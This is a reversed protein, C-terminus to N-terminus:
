SLVLLVKKTPLIFCNNPKEVSKLDILTNAATQGWKGDDLKFKLLRPTKREGNCKTIVVVIDNQPKHDEAVYVLDYESKEISIHPEGSDDNELNELNFEFFKFRIQDLQVIM